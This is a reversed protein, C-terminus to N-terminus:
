KKPKLLRNIEGILEDTSTTAKELFATAGIGLANEKESSLNTVVAIPIATLAPYRKIAKLVEMGSLSGPLMLDLIIVHPLEAQVLQMGLQGTSAFFTRFGQKSLIKQYVEQADTDDEIIVITKM